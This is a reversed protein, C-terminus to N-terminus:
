AAGTFSALAADREDIYARFEPDHCDQCIYGKSRYPRVKACYLCRAIGVSELDLDRLELYRVIDLMTMWSPTKSGGFNLLPGDSQIAAREADRGSGLSGYPESVEVRTMCAALIRSALQGGPKAHQHQAIRREPSNTCGVYLLRDDADYCHYVFHESDTNM